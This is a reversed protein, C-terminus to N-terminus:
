VTKMELAYKRLGYEALYAEAAKPVESFVPVVKPKENPGGMYFNLSQKAQSLVELIANISMAYGLKKMELQLLCSLTFALVCYFAHVRITRDTFHRVPRFTLRRINKLQKFSEEVHYQSRYASVIRENDWDHRNTFLITKGLCKDVVYNYKEDDIFYEISIGNDNKSISYSFITKMYDASLIKQINKLVSDATTKRGKVIKGEEQSKLKNKLEM